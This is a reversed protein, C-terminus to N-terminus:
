SVKGVTPIMARDAVNCARYLPEWKATLRDHIGELSNGLFDLLYGLEPHDNALIRLARHATDVEHIVGELKLALVGLSNDDTM